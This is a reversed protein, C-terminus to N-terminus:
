CKSVWFKAWLICECKHMKYSNRLFANGGDETYRFQDLHTTFHCPAFVSTDDAVVDGWCGGPCIWVHQLHLCYTGAFCHFLTWQMTYFGLLHCDYIYKQIVYTIHYQANWGIRSKYSYSKCCVCTSDWKRLFFFFFTATCMCIMFWCPAGDVHHDPENCDSASCVKRHTSAHDRFTPVCNSITMGM